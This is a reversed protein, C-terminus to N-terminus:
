QKSRIKKIVMFNILKSLPRCERVEIYDGVILSGRLEVPIKAQLKTRRKEYREYKRLYLLKEFQITVRDGFVRIVEGEFSRGRPNIVKEVKPTKNEEVKIKKTKEM